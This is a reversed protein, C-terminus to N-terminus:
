VQQSARIKTPGQLLVFTQNHTDLLINCFKGHHSHPSPPTTSTTTTDQTSRYM